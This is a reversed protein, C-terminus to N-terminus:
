SCGTIISKDHIIHENLNIKMNKKFHNKNIGLAQKQRSFMFNNSVGGLDYVLWVEQSPVTPDMGMPDMYPIYALMQPVTYQHYINGYIAYM